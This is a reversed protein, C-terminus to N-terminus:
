IQKPIPCVSERFEATFPIKTHITKPGQQINELLIDVSHRAIQAVSQRITALQPVLYSGIPLGDIGMVSVDEPVQLGRERLARIAGIAMVDAIAFIATFPLGKDLLDLTALYGQQYSYHSMSRYYRTDFALGHNRFAQVCGRYRLSSTDSTGDDGGIIAINRHGMCCEKQSTSFIHLIRFLFVAGQM